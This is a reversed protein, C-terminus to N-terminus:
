LSSPAEEQTQAEEKLKESISERMLSKQPQQEL